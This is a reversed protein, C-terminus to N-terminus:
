RFLGFLSSINCGSFDCSMFSGLVFERSGNTKGVLIEPNGMYICPLFGLHRKQEEKM